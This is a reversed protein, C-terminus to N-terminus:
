EGAQGDAAALAPRVEVGLAAAVRLDHAEALAEHRLQGLVDARVGVDGGPVDAHPAPLDAVEEALVLAQAVLEGPSEGALAQGVAAAQGPRLGRAVAQAVEGVVHEAA